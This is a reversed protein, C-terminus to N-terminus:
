SATSEITDKKGKKEKAEEAQIAKSGDWDWIISKKLLTYGEQPSNHCVSLAPYLMGAKRL